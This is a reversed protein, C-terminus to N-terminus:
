PTATGGCQTGGNFCIAAAYGSNGSANKARVRYTYTSGHVVTNDVYSSAGAVTTGIQSFGSQPAPFCTAVTGACREVLFGTDDQATGNQSNVRWNVTVSSSTINSLTLLDPANPTTVDPDPIRRTSVILDDYWFAGNVQATGATNYPLLIIKGYKNVVGLGNMPVAADAGQEILRAPQGQHAFWVDAVSTPNNFAGIKMHVQVTLWESDVYNWCAPDTAPYSTHSGDRYHPCGTAVQDMYNGSIPLQFDQYPSQMFASTGGSYACNIFTGPYSGNGEMQKVTYQAPHNDCNNAEYGPADGESILHHKFGEANADYAGPGAMNLIRERYQVYFEQGNGFTTALNSSFNYDYWGPEGQFYGALITYKLSCAGAYGDAAVTCDRTVGAADYLQFYDQKGSTWSDGSTVPVVINDFSQSSVISAAGGPTNVGAARQSWGNPSASASSSNSVNVLVSSSVATNGAADQAIATLNHSGNSVAATNWSISYPATALTAITGGDVQFQVSAVGVNDSASAAVTTSGSVTAGSIPTTITVTPPTTDPATVTVAASASQTNDAM